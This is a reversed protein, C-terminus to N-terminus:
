GAVARAGSWAGSSNCSSANASSWTLTSSGGSTVNAPNATLTLTPLPQNQTVSVTTSAAAQGGPGTCTLTFTNSPATLTSTRATGSTARSGSWRGSAICSTANTSACSLT